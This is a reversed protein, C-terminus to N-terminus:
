YRWRRTVKMWRVWVWSVVTVWFRDFKSMQSWLTFREPDNDYRGM